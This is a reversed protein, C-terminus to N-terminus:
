SAQLKQGDNPVGLVVCFYNLSRWVLALLVQVREKRCEKTLVPECIEEPIDLCKTENNTQCKEDPVKKCEREYRPLCRPEQRENFCKRKPEIKVIETPPRLKCTPCIRQRFPTVVSKKVPRCLKKAVPTCIRKPVQAIPDLM